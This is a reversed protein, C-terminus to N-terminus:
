GTIHYLCLAVTVKCWASNLHQILCLIIPILILFVLSDCSDCWCMLSPICADMTICAYNFPKDLQKTNCKLLLQSAKQTVSSFFFLGKHRLLYGSKYWGLVRSWSTADKRTQLGELSLSILEPSAMLTIKDWVNSLSSPCVVTKVPQIYDEQHTFLVQTFHTFNTCHGKLCLNINYWESTRKCGIPDWIIAFILPADDHFSFM